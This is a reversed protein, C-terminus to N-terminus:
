ARQEELVAPSAGDVVAPVWGITIRTGAGPASDVRAVGGISNVRELISIRVGLREHPILAPDFGAGEDSVVIEVGDNPLGRVLVERPVGDGAHNVSNVMAQTAALVLATGAADPVSLEGLDETRVVFPAALEAAALRLRGALVPLSMDPQAGPFSSQASVLHRMANRAMQASLTKAQPSRARAASLLTTLVSDHVLADVTTREAETADHRVAAAYSDLALNQARDVTAAAERLAFAIVLLVAGLFFCYIGDLTAYLADVGGGSPQMRLWIILAPAVVTYLAAIWWRKSALAACSTAVNCLYYIWPGDTGPLAGPVVLGWGLLVVLYVGAFLAFVSRTWQRFIAALGGIALSGFILVIVTLGITTEM